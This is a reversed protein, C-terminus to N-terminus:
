LLERRGSKSIRVTMPAHMQPTKISLETGDRLDARKVAAMPELKGYMLKRAYQGQTLGADQAGKLLAKRQRDTLPVHLAYPKM